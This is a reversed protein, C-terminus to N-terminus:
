VALPKFKGRMAQPYKRETLSFLSYFNHLLIASGSIVIITRKQKPLQYITLTDIRNYNIRIDVYM